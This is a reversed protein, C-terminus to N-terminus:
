NKCSAARRCATQKQKLPAAGSSFWIASVQDFLTQKLFVQFREKLLTTLVSFPSSRLFPARRHDFKCVFKGINKM